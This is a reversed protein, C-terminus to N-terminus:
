NRTVDTLQPAQHNTRSLIPRHCRFYPVYNMCSLNDANRGFVMDICSNSRTTGQSLDSLVDLEFTDKMFEVLVAEYWVIVCGRIDSSACLHASCQVAKNFLTEGLSQRHCRGNVRAPNELKRGRVGRFVIHPTPGRIQVWSVYPMIGRGSCLRPTRRPWQSLWSAWSSTALYGGGVVAVYCPSSARNLESTSGPCGILSPLPSAQKSREPSLSVSRIRGHTVKRHLLLLHSLYERCGKPCQGSQWNRLGICLTYSEKSPYWGTVLGSDACLIFACLCGHRSHSEFGRDWHELPRLRNM